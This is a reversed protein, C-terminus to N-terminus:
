FLSRKINRDKKENLLSFIDKKEKNLILFFNYNEKSFKVIDDFNTYLKIEINDYRKKSERPLLLLYKAYKAFSNLYEIERELELEDIEEILVKSTYGFDKINLNNDIFIPHFHSKTKIGELSFHLSLKNLFKIAKNLEDIFLPALHLDKYYRDKYILDVRFLTKKVVKVFSSKTQEISLYPPYIDNLVKKSSSIFITNSSANVIKLFNDFIDSGLFLIDEKVSSISKLIEFTVSDSLFFKSNLQIAKYRLYRVIAKEISDVEIWAIEQDIINLKKESIIAYAGNQIASKIGKEDKCIYGDARKIQKADIKLQDIYTISPFNLLEGDIIKALSEIRM